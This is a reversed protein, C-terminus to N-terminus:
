NTSDQQMGYYNYSSPNLMSNHDNFHNQPHQNQHQNTAKLNSIIQLLIQNENRQAQLEKETQQM